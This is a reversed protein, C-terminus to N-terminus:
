FINESYCILYVDEDHACNHEESFSCNKWDASSCKVNDLKIEYSKEIDFGKGISWETAYDFNM